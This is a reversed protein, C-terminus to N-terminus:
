ALAVAQFMDAGAVNETFGNALLSGSTQASMGIDFFTLKDRIIEDVVYHGFAKIAVMRGGAKDQVAVRARQGLRNSEILHQPLMIQIQRSNKEELDAILLDNCADPFAPTTGFRTALRSVVGLALRRLDGANTIIATGFKDLAFIVARLCYLSSQHHIMFVYPRQHTIVM